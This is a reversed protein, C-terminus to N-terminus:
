AMRGLLDAIMAAQRALADRLAAVGEATLREPTRGAVYAQVTSRPTKLIAAILPDTAGTAAKFATVLGQQYAPADKRIREVLPARPTDVIKQLAMVRATETRERLEANDEAAAQRLDAAAEKLGPAPAFKDSQVRDRSLFALPAPDEAPLVVPEVDKIAPNQRKVHARVGQPQYVPNPMALVADVVEDIADFDEALDFGGKTLAEAAEKQQNPKSLTKFSPDDRLSLVADNMIRVSDM